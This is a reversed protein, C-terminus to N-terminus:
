SVAAQSPVVPAVLQAAGCTRQQQMLSLAPVPALVRQSGGVVM